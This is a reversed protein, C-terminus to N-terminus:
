MYVYIYIRFGTPRPAPWKGYKGGDQQIRITHGAPGIVSCYNWQDFSLEDWMGVNVVDDGDISLKRKGSVSSYLLEVRFTKHPEEDLQFDWQVFKKSNKVLKGVGRVEHFISYPVSRSM